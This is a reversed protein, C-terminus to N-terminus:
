CSSSKPSKGREAVYSTVQAPLNSRRVAGQDTASAQPAKLLGYEAAAAVARTRSTVGLKSFLQKNYWKVTEPSLALRQSIERNSLGETMLRLIEIERESFREM